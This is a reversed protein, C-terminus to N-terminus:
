TYDSSYEYSYENGTIVGRNFPLGVNVWLTDTAQTGAQSLNVPMQLYGNIVVGGYRQHKVVLTVANIQRSQLITTYIYDLMLPSLSGFTLVGSLKGYLGGIGQLSQVLTGENLGGDMFAVWGVAQNADSPLTFNSVLYQSGNLITSASLTGSALRTITSYDTM